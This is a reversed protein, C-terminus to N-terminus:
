AGAATPDTVQGMLVVLGTRREVLLFYFPRDVRFVPTPELESIPVATIATAAAAETSTEDVQIFAEHIAVDISLAEDSTLMGEFLRPDSLDFGLADLVGPLEKRSRLSFKPLELDSDRSTALAAWTRRFAAADWRFTRWLKPVVVVFALSTGGYSAFAAQYDDAFVASCRSGVMMQAEVTTGQATRFSKPATRAPDFPASWKGLFYVANVLAARTQESIASGRLIQPIKGRTHESVWANITQQARAPDAAFDIAHVEAPLIRSVADLYTPKLIRQRAVWVANASEFRAAETTHVAGDLLRIDVDETREPYSLGSRLSSKGAGDSSALYVLALASRISHPSAVFSHKEAFARWVAFSATNSREVAAALAAAPVEAAATGEPPKSLLAHFDDRRVAAEPPQSPVDVSPSAIPANRPENAGQCALLASAILATLADRDM